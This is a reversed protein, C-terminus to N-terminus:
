RGRAARAYVDEFRAVVAGPAFRELTRARAAAGLRAAGAPDHALRVLAETMPQQRPAVLVGSVGSEILEDMGPINAAVVPLSAAMAELVVNPQGESASPFAFVDMAALLEPVDSREGPFVAPVGAERATRILGARAPGDGVILLTLGPVAPVAAAAAQVLLDIQKLGVLRAVCGVVFADGAIRLEARLRSRAGPPALFRGADVANPVVEVRQPPLRMVRAFDDAAARSNAVWVDVLARTAREVSLLVAGLAPGHQAPFHHSYMNAVNVVVAPRRALPAALRAYFAARQLRAHVVDIRWRRLLAALRWIGRVDLPGGTDLSAVPVGDLARLLARGGARPTVATVVHPVFRRRDLREALLLVSRMPGADDASVTM